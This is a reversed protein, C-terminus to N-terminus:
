VVSKRDLLGIDARVAGIDTMESEVEAGHPVDAGTRAQELLEMRQYEDAHRDFYGQRLDTCRGMHLSKDRMRHRQGIGARGLLYQRREEVTALVDDRLHEAPKEVGEISGPVVVLTQTMEDVVDIPVDFEIAVTM